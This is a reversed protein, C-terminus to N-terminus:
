NTKKDYFGQKENSIVRFVEKFMNRSENIYRSLESEQTKTDSLDRNQWDVPVEKIKFGLKQFIHLLEVDYASVRWGKIQKKAQFFQLYPFAKLAAKRYCSKFGCQTDKIAPLLFLGRLHSFVFSGLQRLPSFGERSKRSGIVVDFNKQYWPLLKSSEKLPTSQDMDTFIVVEGKAKQIGEWVAAPKGGHSIAFFRFNKKDTVYSEILSASQDTSEDNVIVVEWTYKQKKLYQYVEDLVGAELNKQENYCPIIVSLYPSQPSM